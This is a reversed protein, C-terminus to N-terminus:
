RDQQVLVVVGFLFSSLGMALLTLCPVALELPSFARWTAGELAQIGWKVPSIHSISVLWEPMLSLPVMAGGLMALLLLTAWGAGAVAQETRGLGSLAMTIGVFCLAASVLAVILAPFSTVRVDFVLVAAVTMVLAVGLSAFLSSLAKGALISSRGVPLAKLRAYTGLNREGVLSVAFCAACGILAWLIAQPFVIDSAGHPIASASV